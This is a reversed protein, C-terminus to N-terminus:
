AWGLGGGFLVLGDEAIAAVAHDIFFLVDLMPFFTDTVFPDLQSLFPFSFPLLLLRFLHQLLFFLLSLFFHPHIFLLFPLSFLLLPLSFLLFHPLLQFGGALFASLFDRGLKAADLVVFKDANLPLLSALEAVIVKGVVEHLVVVLGAIHSCGYQLASALVAHAPLDAVLPPFTRRSIVWPPLGVGKSWSWVLYQALHRRISIQLPESKYITM